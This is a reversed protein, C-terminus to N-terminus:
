VGMHDMLHVIVVERDHLARHIVRPLSELAGTLLVAIDDVWPM